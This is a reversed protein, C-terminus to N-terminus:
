KLLKTLETDDWEKTNKLGWCKRSLLSVSQHSDLELDENHYRKESLWELESLHLIIQINKLLQRLENHSNLFGRYTQSM